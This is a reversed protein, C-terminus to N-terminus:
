ENLVGQRFLPSELRRPDVLDLVVPRDCHPSVHNSSILGVQPILAARMLLM